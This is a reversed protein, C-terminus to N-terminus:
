GVAAPTPPPPEEAPALPEARVWAIRDPISGHTAFLLRAIGSPELDALNSLALRQLLLSFGLPDRTLRVGFLDADREQNRIFGVLIPRLAIGLAGWLLLVLPVYTPDPARFPVWGPLFTRHFLVDGIRWLTADPLRDVLAVTVVFVAAMVVIFLALRKITHHLRMHGLEHAVAADLCIPGDAALTDFVVLRRTPWVGIVFANQRRTGQMVKRIRVGDLRVRSRTILSTMRAVTPPDDIRHASATVIFPIILIAIPLGILTSAMQGYGFLVVDWVQQVWAPGVLILLPGWVLARIPLRRWGSSLGQDREDRAGVFALPLTLVWGIALCAAAINWVAETDSGHTSMSRALGSAYVGIFAVAYLGLRWMWRRYRRDAFETARAREEDSFRGITEPDVIPM